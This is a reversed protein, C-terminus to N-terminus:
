SIFSVARNLWGDWFVFQSPDEKVIRGYFKLREAVMRANVEKASKSLLAAKTRPGFIGDDAVGLARQLIKIAMVNGSNVSIDFVQARIEDVPIFALPQLYQTRYIQRAEDKTLAKVEARNAPRNLGRWRGLTGATIGWNTVGGRDAQSDVYGGERELVDDLLQETTV